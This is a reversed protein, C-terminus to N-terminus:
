CYIPDVYRLLSHCASNSTYNKCNTSSMRKISSVNELTRLEFFLVLVFGVYLLTKASNKTTILNYIDKYNIKLIILITIGYCNGDSLNNSM